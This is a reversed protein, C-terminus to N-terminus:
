AALEMSSQDVAVCPKKPPLVAWRQGLVIKSATSQAIGYEAALKSQSIGGAAHRLRIEDAKAQTLKVNRRHHSQEQITAWVCNAPSYGKDGRVRHISHALSPRKGMDAFFAAFSNRWRKCVTIGRAGYLRYNDHHADTCRQIM